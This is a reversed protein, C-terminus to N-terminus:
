LGFWAAIFGCGAAWAAIYEAGCDSVACKGGAVAELEDESLEEMGSAEFDEDRAISFGYKEAFKVLGVVRDHEDKGVLESSLAELEKRVGDNKSVFEMFEVYNSM